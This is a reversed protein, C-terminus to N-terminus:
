LSVVVLVRLKMVEQEFGAILQSDWWVLQVQVFELDLELVLGLQREKEVGEFWM